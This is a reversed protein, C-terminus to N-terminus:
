VDGQRKIFTQIFLNLAVEYCFHRNEDVFDAVIFQKDCRSCQISVPIVKKEWQIVPYKGSSKIEITRISKKGKQM